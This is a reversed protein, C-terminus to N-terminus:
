VYKSLIGLLGGILVLIGVGTWGAILGIVILVIAWVLETSRKALVVAIIGLIISLIGGLGMFIGMMGAVFGFPILAFGLLSVLGIVILLIGGILTLYYAIKQLMVNAL